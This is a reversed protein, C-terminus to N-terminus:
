IKTFRPLIKGQWKVEKIWDELPRIFTLQQGYQAKYIVCIEMNTELIALDIVKYLQNKYHKYAAGVVVQTAAENLRRALEEESLKEEM